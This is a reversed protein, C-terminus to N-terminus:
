AALGSGLRLIAQRLRAHRQLLRMYRREDGAVKAQVIRVMERKAEQSWRGVDPVLALVLAFNEFARREWDRWRDLRVGLWRAVLATLQRRMTAGDGDFDRAMRRNVAFGLRRMQFRRWAGPEAGPLDYFVHGQALRRLTRAPSRYGPQALIKRAEREALARLDPRGPRFGLKWYFWFAGSEIAEENGAGLQYPYVSLCRLGLLQCLLRLTRAYLWASEGDRYAYFTNFGIEAWEFLGIAEIYNVPVGNKLTFGALYGRLPLRREPPLGWLFIQAGRGIDAQFVRSADGLTTGYLQRYRVAMVERILHQVEEGRRRSLRRVPIPPSALERALSVDRRRILPERHYFVRAPRRWNRTRSARLNGLEWRVPLELADYLESKEEGSLALRDFRELLWALEPERGRAARLWTRYPVDAEVFSDEELLPVFRPWTAALRQEQEHQDWQITVRGPFRRALWRVVDFNLTDELWTGAVGSFKEDQFLSLDAGASRLVQVRRWFDNLLGETRRLVAPSPPYARLFLLSDHFRVLTEPDPFRKRGLAALLREVKAAQGMGFRSKAAELQDLLRRLSDSPM